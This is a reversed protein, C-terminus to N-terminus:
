GTELQVHLHNSVGGTKSRLKQAQPLQPLELNEADCELEPARPMWTLGARAGRTKGRARAARQQGSLHEAKGVAGEQEPEWQVQAM